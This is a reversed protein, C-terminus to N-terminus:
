EARGLPAPTTADSPDMTVVMVSEEARPAMPPMTPPAEEAVSEAPEATDEPADSAEELAEDTADAAELPAEDAADSADELAEDTADAAELPAELAADAAL